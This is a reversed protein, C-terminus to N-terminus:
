LVIGRLVQYKAGGANLEDNVTRGGCRSGNELGTDCAGQAGAAGIGSSTLGVTTALMAVAAITVGIRRM